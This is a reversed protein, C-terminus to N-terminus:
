KLYEALRRIGAVAATDSVAPTVDTDFSTVPPFIDRCNMHHLLMAATDVAKHNEGKGGGVLIVGGKKTKTLVTEKRFFRASFYTQLRSTVDLLKGTLESFYVPSAIVINDCEELYDYVEQMEDKIACGPHKWCYRCDICPSIDCRYAEVVLKEGPLQELLLSLLGATDGNKRPSGNFILTKM